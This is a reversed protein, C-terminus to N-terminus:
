AVSGGGLSHRRNEVANNLQALAEDVLGRHDEASLNRRIAKSSILSALEASQGWIEKLAQDKAITIERRLRERETAIDADAQAKREEALRVADKRAEEMMLRIKDNAAQQTEENQKRLLITEDRAKKAEEVASAIDQERKDLGQLMPKWAFKSLVFLLVLFVVMSWVGLDLAKEFLGREEHVGGEALAPQAIALLLVLSFASVLWTRM